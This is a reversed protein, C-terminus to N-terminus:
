NTSENEKLGKIKNKLEAIENYKRADSNWARQLEEEKQDLLDYLEEIHTTLKELTKKNCIPEKKLWEIGYDRRVKNIFWVTPEKVTNDM